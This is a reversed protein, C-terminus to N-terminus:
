MAMSPRPMATIGVAMTSFSSASPRSCNSSVLRCYPRQRKRCAPEGRRIRDRDFADGFRAQWIACALTMPQRAPLPAGNFPSRAYLFEPCCHGLEGGVQLDIGGPQPIRNVFGRFEAGRRFAAHPPQRQAGLVFLDAVPEALAALVGAQFHMDIREARHEAQALPAVHRLRRDAEARMEVGLRGAALEVAHEAREGREFHHARQVIGADFGFHRDADAVPGVLLARTKRRRHHGGGGIDAVEGGVVDQRALIGLAHGHRSASSPM